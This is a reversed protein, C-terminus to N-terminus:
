RPSPCRICCRHTWIWGYKDSSWRPAARPLEGKKEVIVADTGAWLCFVAVLGFCVCWFGLFELMGVARTFRANLESPVEAAAAAAVDDDNEKSRKPRKHSPEVVQAFAEFWEGLSIATKSALVHFAVCMDESNPGLEGKACCKCGLVKGPRLLAALLAARQFAGPRVCALPRTDNYFFTEGLPLSSANVLLTSCLYDIWALVLQKLEREGETSVVEKTQVAHQLRWHRKAQEAWKDFDKPKPTAVAVEKIVRERERLGSRQMWGPNGLLATLRSAAETTAPAQKALVPVCADLALRLAELSLRDLPTSGGASRHHASKGRLVNGADRVVVQLGSAAANTVFTKGFARFVIRVCEFAAGYARRHANLGDLWKAVDVRLQKDNNLGSKGKVSPLARIAALDNPSLAAAVRQPVEAACLAPFVASADLHELVCFKLANMFANVSESSQTFMDALWALVKDGLRLASPNDSLLLREFLAGLVDVAPKTRFNQVRILMFARTDLFSQVGTEVCVKLGVVVVVSIRRQQRLHALALVLGNAVDPALEDFDPFVVAITHGREHAANPPYPPAVASTRHAHTGRTTSLDPPRVMGRWSPRRGLM